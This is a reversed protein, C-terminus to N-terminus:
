ILQHETMVNAVLEDALEAEHEGTLEIIVQCNEPDAAITWHVELQHSRREMEAAIEYIIAALQRHEVHQSRPDGPLVTLVPGGAATRAVVGCYPRAPPLAAVRRMPLQVTRQQADEVLLLHAVRPAGSLARLVEAEVHRGAAQIGAWTDRQSEIFTVYDIEDARWSEINRRIQALFRTATSSMQKSEEHGRQDAAM